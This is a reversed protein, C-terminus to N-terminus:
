GIKRWLRARSFTRSGAAVEKCRLCKDQFVRMPIQNGKEDLGLVQGKDEIEERIIEGHNLIACIIKKM